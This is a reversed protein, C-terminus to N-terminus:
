SGGLLMDAKVGLAHPGLSLLDDLFALSQRFVFGLEGVLAARKLNLEGFNDLHGSVDFSLSGADVDRPFLELFFSRYENLPLGLPFGALGAEGFEFLALGGGRLRECTSFLREGLGFSLELGADAREFRTLTLQLLLFILQGGLTPMEVHLYRLDIFSAFGKGGHLGLKGAVMLLDGDLTLLQQLSKAIGRSDGGGPCFADACGVLRNGDAVHV